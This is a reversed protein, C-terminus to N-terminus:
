CIDLSPIYLPMPLWGPPVILQPTSQKWNTYESLPSFLLATAERKTLHVEAQIGTDNPDYKNVVVHNNQVVIEVIEADKIALIFRGDQLKMNQAKCKLFAEIVSSYDMINFKHNYSTSYWDCVDGLLTIKDHDYAPIIFLLTDLGKEAALAKSVVPLLSQDILEIEQVTGGEKSLAVYGAFKGNHLIILPDTHWTRLITAFREKARASNVIGQQYLQYADDLQPNDDTLSEFSIGSTDLGKYKHRINDSTLSFVLKIGAPEYGFFEYRQRQGGLVSLSYGQSKMDELAMNMLKQMYGKGRSRPHVSVTGVCGFKLGIGAVNCTVPLVCIMAKIRGDEKVMYHYRQTDAGDGYLKPIMQAFDHPRANKGFVMDAFDIIDQADEAIGKVYLEM